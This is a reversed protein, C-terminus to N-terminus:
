NFLDLKFQGNRTVLRHASTVSADLRNWGSSQRIKIGVISHFDRFFHIQIWLLMKYFVFFYFNFCIFHNTLIHFKGGSLLYSLHHGITYKVNLALM